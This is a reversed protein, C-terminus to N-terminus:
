EKLSAIQAQLGGIERENALLEDNLISVQSQLEAIHQESPASVPACTLIAMLLMMLLVFILSLKKM